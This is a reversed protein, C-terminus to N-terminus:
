WNNDDFPDTNSEPRYRPPFWTHNDLLVIVAIVCVSCILCLVSGYGGTVHMLLLVLSLGCTLGAFFLQLEKILWISSILTLVGLILLAILAPSDSLANYGNLFKKVTTVGNVIETIGLGAGIDSIGNLIVDLNREYQPLALFLVLWLGSLVLAAYNPEDRRLHSM